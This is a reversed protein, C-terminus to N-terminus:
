ASHLPFLVRRTAAQLGSLLVAAQTAASRCCCPWPRSLVPLAGKHGEEAAAFRAPAPSRSADQSSCSM